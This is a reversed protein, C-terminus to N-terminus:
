KILVMRKSVSKDITTLRYFYIGSAFDSAKWNVSHSGAEVWGDVLTVVKRGMIDYITLNVEADAPLYYIITTAYNFPNPYNSMLKSEAPTNAEIDDDVSVVDGEVKVIYFDKEGAGYSETYGAIVYGGDETLCVADAWDDYCGGYTRTWVTDGAPDTKILYCDGEGAGFSMTWGAIIYGNDMTQQISYAGEQNISGYTRTWLTDGAPDTKVIYVDNYGAGFSYTEGAIIYGGDNTQQISYAVDWYEGGYVRTWIIDGFNDTKVVYPNHGGANLDLRFGATIYGGDSTQQVSYARDYSAGGYNEEWETNGSSDTKILYFDTLGRGVYDYQFTGALIYGGDDTQQVSYADENYPALGYTRTWLTDGVSDTKVLYCDNHGAGFSATEGAVIFGGDDTQRVCRAIDWESGGYTRTWLTNGESDIKVLYFDYGGAGFSATYGAIIYGGDNTQQISYARDSSAGGFTRTWITDGPAASAPNICVMLIIIAFILRKM